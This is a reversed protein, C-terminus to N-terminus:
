DVPDAGLDLSARTTWGARRLEVFLSFREPLGRGWRVSRPDVLVTATSGRSPPGLADVSEDAADRLFVQISDQALDAAADLVAPTLVDPAIQAPLQWVARRAAAPRPVLDPHFTLPRGNALTLEARVALHLRGEGVRSVSTVAATCTMGAEVAALALLDADRGARLLASRLRLPFPLYADIRAPFREAVLPHLTELLATRHAAPYDLLVPGVRELVKLGYWHPLLRDLREGPGCGAEVLDLVGRLFGFYPEPDILGASASPRDQRVTWYYCPHHALISIVRAAFYAQMVFMHDELRVRGEPFRIGHERVFATRFLKHPTLLDLLPDVGLVARPVDRQFTGLRLERGVGVVKGFVVDSGHADAYDCLRELGEDAFRDDHDCFFLYRGAAADIGANRPRGPWGSHELQLVKLHPHGATAVALRQRTAADSGDDCFLVEFETAPLSQRLLSALLDDFHPGPNYVPVVVSVRVPV